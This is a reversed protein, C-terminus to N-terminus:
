NPRVIDAITSADWSDRDKEPRFWRTGGITCSRSASLLHCASYSQLRVSKSSFEANKFDTTKSKYPPSLFRSENLNLIQIPTFIWEVSFGIGQRKAYKACKRKEYPSSFTCLIRTRVIQCAKGNGLDDILCYLISLFRIATNSCHWFQLRRSNDVPVSSKMWDWCAEYNM